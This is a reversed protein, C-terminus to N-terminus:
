IKYFIFLVAFGAAGGVLFSLLHDLITCPSESYDPVYLKKATSKQEGVKTAPADAFMNNQM